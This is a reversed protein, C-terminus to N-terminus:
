TRNQVTLTGAGATNGFFQSTEVCWIGAEGDYTCPRLTYVPTYNALDQYTTANQADSGYIEFQELTGSFPSGNHVSNSGLILGGGPTDNGKTYTTINGSNSGWGFRKPTMFFGVRLTSFALTKTTNLATSGGYYVSFKRTTSTTGTNLIMALFTSTETGPVFIVRQAAKLTENGFAVRISANEPPVITTDVYAVGDFVLQDYFVPEVPGPPTPSGGAMMM